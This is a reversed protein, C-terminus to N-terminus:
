PKGASLPPGILQASLWPAASIRCRSFAKCGNNPSWQCGALNISVRAALPLRKAWTCSPRTHTILGRQAIHAEHQVLQEIDGRVAFQEAVAEVALQDVAHQFLARPIGAFHHRREIAMAVLLAAAQLIALHARGLAKALRIPLVDIVAPRAHGPRALETALTQRLHQRAVEM